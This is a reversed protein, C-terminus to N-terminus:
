HPAPWHVVGVTRASKLVLKKSIQHYLGDEDVQERVRYIRQDPCVIVRSIVFGLDGAARTGQQEVSPAQLYRRFATPPVRYFLEADETDTVEVCGGLQTMGFTPIATFFRVFELAQKGDSIRVKGFLNDPHVVVFRQQGCTLWIAHPRALPVSESLWDRAITCETRLSALSPIRVEGAQTSGVWAGILCMAVSKRM